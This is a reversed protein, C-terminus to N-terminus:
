NSALPKGILRELDTVSRHAEALAEIHQARIDALTQQADLMDLYELKGSRYAEEASQFAQEAAPLMTNGIMNAEALATKAEQWQQALETRLALQTARQEQRAQEAEAVAAEINGTNRDFLPLPIGIGFEVSEEGGAREHVIATSVTLDPTAAAREQAIAADALRQRAEGQLWAPNEPLRERLDALPPLTPLKRLDGVIRLSASDSPEADWLAGLSAKAAVLAGEARQLDLQRSALELASKPLAVPSVKGSHVRETVTNQVKGAIGHAAKAAELQAEAILVDSFRDRTEAVLEARTGELEARALATGHAAVQMRNTRKGGLELTQSARITYVSDEFADGSGGLGIDEIEFELEPNPRAAAQRERGGAAQISAEGSKVRPNRTLVLQVVQELGLAEPLEPVPQAPQSSLSLSLGVCLAALSKYPLKRSM